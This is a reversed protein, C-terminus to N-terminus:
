GLPHYNKHLHLGNNIIRLQVVQEKVVEEVRWCLPRCKRDDAKFVADGVDYHIATREHVIIVTCIICENWAYKASQRLLHQCGVDLVFLVEM